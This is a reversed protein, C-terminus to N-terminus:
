GSPRSSSTRPSRKRFKVTRERFSMRAAPSSLRANSNRSLAAGNANAVGPFYDAVAHMEYGGHKRFLGAIWNGRGGLGVVGLKIKRKYERPAPPPAQEPEDEARTKIAGLFTGVATAALTKEIFQRRNM